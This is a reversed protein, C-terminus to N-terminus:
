IYDVGNDLAATLGSSNIKPIIGQSLGTSITYFDYSGPSVTVYNTDSYSTTTPTLIGASYSKYLVSCVLGSMKKHDQLFSYIEASIGAPLPTVTPASGKTAMFMQQTNDLKANFSALSIRTSSTTDGSNASSSMEGCCCCCDEDIKVKSCGLSLLIISITVITSKLFIKEM